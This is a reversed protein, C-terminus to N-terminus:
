RAGVGAGVRGVRAVRDIEAAVGSLPVVADAVGAEVVAGPMGWVVSTAEDQVMVVGGADRIRASGREGDRGMGTLVVALLDGGWVEAASRFLVDVAPRCSNEKPGDDLGLRVPRGSGGTVVLHHDGPALWVTGPVPAEGGGAEGVRLPSRADLREALLKTFMPPMHQVVLVPVPLDRPLGATVEALANPGGTSVGIVVAEVRRDPLSRGPLAPAGAAPAGPRRAAGTPPPAGARRRRGAGPGAAGLAPAALELIKPVLEDQVRQQAQQLGGSSSPKTVYDDAGRLLADLTVAAGRGTLTSFMIVPLRPWDARLATLTALGDMEPMEVDLVVVDPGLQGVKALGVKGNPATGALEVGPADKLVDGVVRRIVVSDDVLLV